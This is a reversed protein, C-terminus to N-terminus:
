RNMLKEHEDEPSMEQHVDGEPAPLAPERDILPSDTGLQQVAEQNAPTAVVSTDVQAFGLEDLAKTAENRTSAVLVEKLGAAFPGPDEEPCLASALERALPARSDQGDLYTTWLLHEDPDYLAAGSEPPSKLYRRFANLAFQFELLTASKCKLSDLRDLTSELDESFWIVVSSCGPM